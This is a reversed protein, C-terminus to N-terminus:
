WPPTSCHSQDTCALSRLTVPLALDEVHGVRADRLVKDFTPPGLLDGREILRATRGHLDCVRHDAAIQDAIRGATLNRGLDSRVVLGKCDHVELIRVCSRLGVLLLRLTATPSIGQADREVFARDRVV